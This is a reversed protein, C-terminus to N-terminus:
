REGAARTPYEYILKLVMEAFNILREADARTVPTLEHTAENGKQRIHDIWPARARAPLYGATELYTVAQAFTTDPDAGEAVAIHLLLKRCLMVAALYAEVTMCNRAERYVAAVDAPIYEVDDGFRAAPIQRDAVRDFYTPKGCFSCLYILHLPPQISEPAQYGRNSGAVNGCYGCTYSRPPLEETLRWPLM